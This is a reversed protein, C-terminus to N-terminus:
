PLGFFRGPVVMSSGTPSSCCSRQIISVVFLYQSFVLRLRLTLFLCEPPKVAHAFSEVTQGFARARALGADMADAAYCQM